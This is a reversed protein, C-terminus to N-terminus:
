LSKTHLTSLLWFMTIKLCHSTKLNRQFTKTRSPAYAKFLILIKLLMAKKGQKKNLYSASLGYTQEEAIFEIERRSWFMEVFCHVIGLGDAKPYESFM